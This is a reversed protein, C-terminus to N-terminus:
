SEQTSCITMQESLAEDCDGVSTWPKTGNHQSESGGSKM